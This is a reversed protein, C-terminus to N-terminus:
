EREDDKEQDTRKRNFPLNGNDLRKKVSEVVWNISAIGGMSLIGCLGILLWATNPDTATWRYGVMSVCTGMVATNLGVRLIALAEKPEERLAAAMGAFASVFFAWCFVEKPTMVPMEGTVSAVVFPSFSALTMLAPIKM